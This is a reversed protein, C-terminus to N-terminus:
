RVLADTGYRKVGYQITFHMNHRRYQVSGHLYSIYLVMHFRIKGYWVTVQQSRVGTNM